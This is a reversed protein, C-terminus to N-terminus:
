NNEAYPTYGSKELYEPISYETGNETVMATEFDITYETDGNNVILVNASYDINYSVGNDYTVIVQRETVFEHNDIKATKVPSLVM